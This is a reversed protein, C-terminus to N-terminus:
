HHAHQSLLGAVVFLNKSKNEPTVLILGVLQLCEESLLWLHIECNYSISLAVRSEGKRGEFVSM